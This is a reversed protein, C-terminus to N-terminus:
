IWIKLAILIPNSKSLLNKFGQYNSRIVPKVGM